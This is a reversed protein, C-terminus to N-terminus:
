KRDGEWRPPRKERFANVGERFDRSGYLERVVDDADAASADLVRQVLQKTARLTV